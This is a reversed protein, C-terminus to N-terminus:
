QTVEPVVIPKGTQPHKVFLFTKEYIVELVENNTIEAANGCFIVAGDRLGLVRESTLVANNIDHTVSIITIGRERNVRKLLGNIEDAHRPDLFTTPEDLLLIKAGQALAAAIFVKQREGGSLTNLFRGAFKETGSLALARRVAKQDEANISSFPSLHPYRGMMVFEQVTFPSLRDEAQPVYSILRALEKQSYSALPAGNVKIAGSGGTLIRDLCKLLTTKGAGNPGIVSLYEGESVVFSINNLIAKKGISFSFKQVEIQATRMTVEM